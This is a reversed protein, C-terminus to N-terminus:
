EDGVLLGVVREDVEEAVLCVVEHEDARSNADDSAVHRRLGAVLTQQRVNLVDEGLFALLLQYHQM